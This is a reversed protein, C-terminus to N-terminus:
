PTTALIAGWGARLTISTVGSGKVGNYQVPYYTGGLSYVIATAPDNKAAAVPNQTLMPRWLILANAYQRKVVFQAEGPTWTSPDADVPAGVNFVVAQIANEYANTSSTDNFIGLYTGPEAVLYYYALTAIQIDRNQYGDAELPFQSEDRTDVDGAVTGANVRAVISARRTNFTARNDRWAQLLSENTWGKLGYNIATIDSTGSYGFLNGAIWLGTDSWLRGCFSGMNEGYRISAEDVGNRGLRGRRNPISNDMFYGGLLPNAAKNRVTYDIIWERFRADGPDTAPRWTGYNYDHRSQYRFRADMGTRRNAYESANLYGDGDADARRDFAQFTPATVGNIDNGDWNETMITGVPATGSATTLVRLFYGYRYDGGFNGAGVSPRKAVVWGSPPDFVAQRDAGLVTFGSTADSLLTLDAWANAYGSVDIGSCYQLKGAWGGAGATTLNTRVMRLRDPYGLYLADGAAGGFTVSAHTQTPDGTSTVTSAGGALVKEIQWFRSAQRSSGGYGTSATRANRLHFFPSERDYGAADAFEYWDQLLEGYTNTAANIYLIQPVGPSWSEVADLRDTASKVWDWNNAILTNMGNPSSVSTNTSVFGMQRIHSRKPAIVPSDLSLTVSTTVTVPASKRVNDARDWAKAHVSHSGNLVRCPDFRYTWPAKFVVGTKVNDVFWEVRDLVGADAATCTFNTFATLTAGAVPAVVSITPSGTDGFVDVGSFDDIYLAVAASSTSPARVVGVRNGTTIPSADIDPLHESFAWSPAFDNYGEDDYWMSGVGTKTWMLSGLITSGRVELTLTAWSDASDGSLFDNGSQGVFSKLIARVGDLYKTLHLGPGGSSSTELGYGTM